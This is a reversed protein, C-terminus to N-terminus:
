GKVSTTNLNELLLYKEMYLFILSIILCIKPFVSLLRSILFL